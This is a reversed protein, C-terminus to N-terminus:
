IIRKLLREPTIELAERAQQKSLGAGVAIKWAVEQDILDGPEHADTCVILKVGNEIALKAVIGNTLAHGRRSTLEFIVGNNSAVQCVEETILGPHTLIDIDANVAALNTGEEVPEALTEGHVLILKAGYERSKKALESISKAPVMTLEAGPIVIIDWYKMLEESVQVIRPIVHDLTSIDVHDTIAIAKHNMVKALRVLESPLLVGDSFITHAHFEIREGFKMFTDEEIQM